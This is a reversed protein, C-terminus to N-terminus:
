KKGKDKDKTKEDLEEEAKLGTVGELATILRDTEVSRAQEAALATDVDVIDFEEKTLPKNM